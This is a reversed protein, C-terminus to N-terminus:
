FPEVTVLEYRPRPSDRAPDLPLGKSAPLHSQSSTRSSATQENGETEDGLPNFSLEPAEELVQTRTEQAPTATAEVGPEPSVSERNNPERWSCTPELASSMASMSITDNPTEFDLINLSTLPTVAAATAQRSQSPAEMRSPSLTPHGYKQRMFRSVSGQKMMALFRNTGDELDGPSDNTKHKSSTTRPPTFNMAKPSVASVPPSSAMDMDMDSTKAPSSGQEITDSSFELLDSYVHGGDVPTSQATLSSAPALAQSRTADGPRSSSSIESAQAKVEQSSPPAVRVTVTKARTAQNAPAIPIAPLPKHDVLSRKLVTNEKPWKVSITSSGCKLPTRALVRAADMSNLFKVYTTQQGTVHQLVVGRHRAFLIQLDLTQLTPPINYAYLYNFVEPSRKHQQATTSGTIAAPGSVETVVEQANALVKTNRIDDQEAQIAKTTESSVHIPVAASTTPPLLKSTDVSQRGIPTRDPEKLEVRDVKDKPAKIPIAASRKPGAGEKLELEDHGVQEKLEQVPLALSNRQFEPSAPQSLVFPKARAEMSSSASSLRAEASFYFHENEIENQIM